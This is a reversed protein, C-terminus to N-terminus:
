TMFNLITNLKFLFQSKELLEQSKKFYQFFLYIM